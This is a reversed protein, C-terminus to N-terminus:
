DLPRGDAYTAATSALEDNSYTIGGIGWADDGRIINIYIRDRSVKDIAIDAVVDTMRSIFSRQKELTDLSAPPIRLTINIWSVQKGDAYLRSQDRTDVDVILNKRVFANNKSDNVDLILDSLGAVLKHEDDRSFMGEPLQVTIPM